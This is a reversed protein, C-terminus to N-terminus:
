IRAIITEAASFRTEASLSTLPALSKLCFEIQASLGGEARNALHITANMEESLQKAVALGLGTGPIYKPHERELRVFPRIVSELKDTAIGPGRDLVAIVTGTKSRSIKLEATGAYKLANDIFNSLIRRLAIPKLTLVCDVAEILSVPRGTDQYDLVLSDVFSRLDVSVAEESCLHSATAYALGDKILQEAESLDSLLKEREPFDDTLELRLRMRTMPAQVDHSFSSFLRIRETLNPDERHETVDLNRDSQAVGSVAVIRVPRGKASPDDAHLKGAMSLRTAMYPFLLRSGDDDRPYALSMLKFLAHQFSTLWKWQRGSPSTELSTLLEAQMGWSDEKSISMIDEMRAPLDTAPGTAKM